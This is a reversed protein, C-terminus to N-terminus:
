RSTNIGTQYVNFTTSTKTLVQCEVKRGNVSAPIFQRLYPDFKSDDLIYFKEKGGGTVQIEHKIIDGDPGITFKHLCNLKTGDPFDAHLMSSIGPQFLLPYLGYFFGGIKVPYRIVDTAKISDAILYKLNNQDASDISIIHQDYDYSQVIQGKNSAFFWKGVRKGEKYDGKSIIVNNYIAQYPGQRVKKNSKLVFFDERVLQTLYDSRKVTDQGYTCLGLLLFVSLLFNFAKM